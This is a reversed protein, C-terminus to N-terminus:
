RLPTGSAAPAAPLASIPVYVVPRMVLLYGLGFLMVAGVIANALCLILMGTWGRSMARIAVDARGLRNRLETDQRECESLAKGALAVARDAMRLADEVDDARALAQGAQRQAERASQLAHTVDRSTRETLEVHSRMALMLPRVKQAFREPLDPEILTDMQSLGRQNQVPGLLARIQEYGAESGRLQQTASVQTVEDRRGAM